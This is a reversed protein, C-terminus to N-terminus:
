GNVYQNTILGGTKRYFKESEIISHVKDISDEENNILGLRKATGM